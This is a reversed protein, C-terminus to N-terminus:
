KLVEMLELSLFEKYTIGLKALAETSDKAVIWVEYRKSKKQYVVRFKYM